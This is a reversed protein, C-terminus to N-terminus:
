RYYPTPFTKSIHDHWALKEEDVLAWVMGLGGVTYSLFSGFMRQIREDRDPIHGDFNLLRLQTWVMGPTDAGCVCFLLKYFLALVVLIGAYLPATKAMLVVQGGCLEFTLLFLGLAAMIMAADLCGATARHLPNAVPADCYILPVSEQASLDEFVLSQQAGNQATAKRSVHQGTQSRRPGATNRRKPRSVQVPLEMVKHAGSFLTRQYEIRHIEPEQVAIATAQPEAELELATNGMTVYNDPAPRAFGALRRGCRFCRHIDAANVACCHRCTM